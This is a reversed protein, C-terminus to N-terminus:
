SIGGEARRWEAPHTSGSSVLAGFMETDSRITLSFNDPHYYPSTHGNIFEAIESRVSVQNGM